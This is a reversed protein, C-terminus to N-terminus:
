LLTHVQSSAPLLGGIWKNPRVCSIHSFECGYIPKMQYKVNRWPLLNYLVSVFYVINEGTEIMWERLRQMAPEELSSYSAAEERCQTLM